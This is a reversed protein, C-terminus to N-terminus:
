KFVAMMLKPWEWVREWIRMPKTALMSYASHPLPLPIVTWGRKRYSEAESHPIYRVIM